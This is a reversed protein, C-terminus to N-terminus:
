VTLSFYFFDKKKLLSCRKYMVREVKSTTVSVLIKYVYKVNKVHGAEIICERKKAPINEKRINIRATTITRGIENAIGVCVCM